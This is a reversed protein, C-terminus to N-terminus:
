KNIDSPMRHQEQYTNPLNSAQIRAPVCIIMIQNKTIKELAELWTGAYNRLNPCSKELGCGKQTM